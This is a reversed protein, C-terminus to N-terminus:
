SATAIAPEDEMSASRRTEAAFRNTMYTLLLVWFTLALSFLPFQLALPLSYIMATLPIWVAWNTFLTPIIKDRYFGFNLARRLARFDFGSNKWHYALVSYPAAFFVNYVFQDICIKAAVVPVSASDGLLAALGRYLFDVTIGAFGWIPATFLLNQFNQRRPRGSQFFLILFIEPLIAAALITAGVVFVLGYARKFEALQHLAGAFTPSLYFAALVALMAAQLLVGPVINARV